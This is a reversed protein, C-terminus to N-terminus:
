KRATGASEEFFENTNMYSPLELLPRFQSSLFQGYAMLARDMTRSNVDVVIIKFWREYEAYAQYRKRPWMEALEECRISTLGCCARWTHQDFIPRNGESLLHALFINWVAGSKFHKPISSTAKWATWIRFTVAEVARQKRRSLPGGNKWEFLEKLGIQLSADDRAGKLNDLGSV